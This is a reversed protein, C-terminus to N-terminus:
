KLILMLSRLYDKNKTFDNHGEGTLTILEDGQKFFAKLKVSSSYYVAEDADGHFITIPVKTQQIYQFTNLKYRIFSTDIGPVLHQIWDTLSYYPAQLILKKPYNNAALWAAPGTGISQGIIVMRDESYSKILYNYVDQVDNFLQQDDTNKGESKGYGRYDLVFFDYGLGTYTPAIKGWVNVGGNSGHLYFVLGKAVSSKFLLGHLKIHDRTLIFKEEYHGPFLSRFSFGPAYKIGPWIQQEIIQVDEKNGQAHSNCLVALCLLLILNRRM